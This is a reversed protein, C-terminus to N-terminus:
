RQKQTEKTETKSSRKKPRGNAEDLINDLSRTKGVLKAALKKAYDPTLDKELPIHYCASYILTCKDGVSLTDTFKAKIPLEKRSVRLLLQYQKDKACESIMRIDGYGDRYVFSYETDIYKDIVEERSIYIDNSSYAIGIPSDFDWGGSKMKQKIDDPLNEMLAAKFDSKSLEKPLISLGATLSKFEKYQDMRKYGIEREEKRLSAM